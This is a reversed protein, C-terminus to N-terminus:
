TRAFAGREFLAMKRQAKRARKEEARAMRANVAAIQERTPKVRAPPIYPDSLDVDRRNVVVPASRALGMGAFVQLAAAAATIAIVKRM